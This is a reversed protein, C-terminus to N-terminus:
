IEDDDDIDDFEDLELEDDDAGLEEDDDWDDDLEHEPMELAASLPIVSRREPQRPTLAASVLARARPVQSRDRGQGAGVM